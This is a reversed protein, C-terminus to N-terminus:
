DAKFAASPRSTFTILGEGCISNHRTLRMLAMDGTTSPVESLLRWTGPIEGNLGGLSFRSLSSSLRISEVLRMGAEFGAESTASGVMKLFRIGVVIHPDLSVLSSTSFATLFFVLIYVPGVLSSLNEKEWKKKFRLMCILMHQAM